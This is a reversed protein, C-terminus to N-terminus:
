KDLFPGCKAASGFRQDFDAVGGNVPIKTPPLGRTYQDITVVAGDDSMSVKVPELHKGKLSVRLDLTFYGIAPRALARTLQAMSQARGANFLPTNGGLVSQPLYVEMKADPGECALVLSMYADRSPDAAAAVVAWSWCIMLFLIATRVM